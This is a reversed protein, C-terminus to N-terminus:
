QNGGLKAVAELLGCKHDKAYARAKGLEDLGEQTVTFGAPAAFEVPDATGDKPPNKIGPLEGFEVLKPLRGLFDKFFDLSPTKTKSDGESFELVPASKLGAMFDALGKALPPTLKGEKVLGECFAAHAAKDMEAQKAELADARANLEGERKALDAEKAALAEPAPAGNKDKVDNGESPTGAVLAPTPTPDAAGAGATAALAPTPTIISPHDGEAFGSDADPDPEIGGTEIQAVQWNPLAQDAADLGFKGIFWERLGRLISGLTKTEWSDLTGFDVVECGDMKGSFSAVPKLGKVAPAMAGLFGVHRLYYHGPVPNDPHNPPYFSGSIKKYRGAAVAEAFAPDVQEPEAELVGESFSLSKVWGYAPDSDKPHGAVIPAQFKEASYNAAIAMVESESFDLTHGSMATFKGPRFIQLAM